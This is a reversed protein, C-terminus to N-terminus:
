QLGELYGAGTSLGVRACWIMNHPELDTTNEARDGASHYFPDFDVSVRKRERWSEGPMDPTKPHDEAKDWASTFLTVSPLKHDRFYKSGSFVYSDTGGLSKNTAWRQPYGETGQNKAMVATTSRVFERNALLDDPEVNLQEASAGYGAQDFNLVGLLPRADDTGTSELHQDLYERTSKIETGWIVFRVQRAPALCTGQDIAQKWSRAMELVIAVGSANDNAGPGGADSDGHACILFYGPAAGERAPLIAEVSKSARKEIHADLEFALNVTQDKGLATRLVAGDQASIGFVPYRNRASTRLPRLKPWDGKPTNFGDVLALALAPGNRSPRHFNKYLGVQSDSADIRVPATGSAAPSFGYPWTRQLRYPERTAGNSDEFRAVLSWSEEWHVLKDHEHIVKTPLGLAKFEKVLYAVSRDGSPTGGMRPGLDVLERVTRAARTEQTGQVLPPAVKDPDKQPLGPGSHAQPVWILAITALLPLM